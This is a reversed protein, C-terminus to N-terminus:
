NLENVTVRLYYNLFPLICGKQKTLTDPSTTHKFIKTKINIDFGKWFNNSLMDSVDFITQLIHM